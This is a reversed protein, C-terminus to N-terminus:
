TGSRWVLVIRQGLRVARLRSGPAGWPADSGDAVDRTWAGGARVLSALGQLVGDQAASPWM